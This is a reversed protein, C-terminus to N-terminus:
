AGRMRLSTTLMLVVLALARMINIRMEPKFRQESEPRKPQM